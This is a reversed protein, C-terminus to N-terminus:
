MFSAAKALSKKALGWNKAEGFRIAMDINSRVIGGIRQSLLTDPCKRLHRAYVCLEDQIVGLRREGEALSVGMADEHTAGNVALQVIRAERSIDKLTWSLKARILELRHLALHWLIGQRLRLVRRHFDVLYTHEKRRTLVVADKQMERLDKIVHQVNRAFPLAAIECFVDMEKGIQTVIKRAETPTWTESESFRLFTAQASPSRLDRGGLIALLDEYADNTAYIYYVIRGVRANLRGMIFRIDVHRINMQHIAGGFAMAAAGPNHRGNVDKIQVGRLADLHAFTLSQVRRKKLTGIVFEVGLDAARREFESEVAESFLLASCRRLTEPHLALEQLDGDTVDPQAGARRLASVIGRLASYIDKYVLWEANIKSRRKLESNHVLINGPKIRESGSRVCTVILISRHIEHVDASIAGDKTRFLGTRPILQLM